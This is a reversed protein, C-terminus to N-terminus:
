VGHNKSTVLGERGAIERVSVNLRKALELRSQKTIILVRRAGSIDTINTV